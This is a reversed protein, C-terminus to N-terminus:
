ASAQKPAIPTRSAKRLITLCEITSAMGSAASGDTIGAGAAPLQAVIAAKGASAAYMLAAAGNGNCNGHACQPPRILQLFRIGARSPDCFDRM